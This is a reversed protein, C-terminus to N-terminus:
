KKIRGLIDREELMLYSKGDEKITTGAFKAFIVTDGPEVSLKLRKGNELVHGAGVAVVTGIQQIQDKATPIYIGSQTQTDVLKPEILVRSGLPEIM